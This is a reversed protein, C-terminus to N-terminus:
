VHCLARAVQRFCGPGEVPGYDPAACRGAAHDAGLRDRARLGLPDNPPDCWGGPLTFSCSSYSGGFFDVSYDVREAGLAKAGADLSKLAEEQWGYGHIAAADYRVRDRVKEPLEAYRYVPIEVTRM